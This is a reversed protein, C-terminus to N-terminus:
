RIDVLEWNELAKKWNLAEIGSNALEEIFKEGLAKADNESLDTGHTLCGFTFGALELTSQLVVNKALEKILKVIFRRLTFNKIIFKVIEKAAFVLAPRVTQTAAISSGGTFVATVAGGVTLIVSAADIASSVNRITNYTDLFTCGANFRSAPHYAWESWSGNAGSGGVARVRVQLVKDHQDSHIRYQPKDPDFGDTKGTVSNRCLRRNGTSCSVERQGGPAPRSDGGLDSSSIETGELITAAERALQDRADESLNGGELQFYIERLRDTQIRMYRWDIEYARASRIESWYIVADPDDPPWYWPRGEPEVTVEPIGIAAVYLEVTPSRRNDDNVATLEIDYSRGRGVRSNVHSRDAASVQDEDSWAIDGSSSERYYRIHYHSIPSSGSRAPATWTVGLTGDSTIVRVDRPSSPPSTTTTISRETAPGVGVANEARVQVTYTTNSWARGFGFSRDNPSRNWPGFEQGPRSVTVKYNTIVSGGDDAPPSWTAVVTRTGHPENVVQLRVNRPAGPAETRSTESQCNSVCRMAMADVGVRRAAPGSRGPAMQSDNYHVEIGVRNDNAAVTGLSHWGDIERQTIRDTYTSRSGITIRYRVRASAHARPVFVALEQTGERTGMDWRAWHDAPDGTEESVYAYSSGNHRAPGHGYPQGYRNREDALKGGWWSRGHPTPTDNVYWESENIQWENPQAVAMNASAAAPTAVATALGAAWISFVLFGAIIRRSSEAPRKSIM